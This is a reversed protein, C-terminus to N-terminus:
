RTRSELAKKEAVAIEADLMDALQRLKTPTFACGNGVVIEASNGYSNLVIRQSLWINNKDDGNDMFETIVLIAEGGNSKPNTSFVHRHTPGPM